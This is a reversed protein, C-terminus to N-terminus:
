LFENINDPTLPKNPQGGGRQTRVSPTPTFQTMPGAGRLGGTPNVNAPAQRNAIQKNMGQLSGRAGGRRNQIQIPTASNQPVRLRGLIDQANFTDGKHLGRNGLAAAFDKTTVNTPMRSAYQKRFAALQRGYGGGVASFQEPAQVKDGVYGSADEGLGVGRTIQRPALGSGALPNRQPSTAPAQTRAPNESERALQEIRRDMMQVDTAMPPKDYDDPRFYETYTVPMQQMGRDRNRLPSAPTM